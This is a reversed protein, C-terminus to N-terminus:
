SVLVNITAGIFKTAAVRQLLTITESRRKKGGFVSDTTPQVLPTGAVDDTVTRSLLVSLDRV